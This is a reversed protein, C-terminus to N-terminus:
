IYEKVSVNVPKLIASLPISDYQGRKCIDDREGVVCRKNFTNINREERNRSRDFGHLKM